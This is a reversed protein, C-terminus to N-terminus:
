YSKCVVFFHLNLKFLHLANRVYAFILELSVIKQTLHVKIPKHQVVLIQINCQNSLVCHRFSLVSGSTFANQNTTFEKREPNLDM